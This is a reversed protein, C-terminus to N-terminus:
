GSVRMLGLALRGDAVLMQLDLGSTLDRTVASVVQPNPKSTM